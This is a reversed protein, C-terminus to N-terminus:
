SSNFFMICVLKFCVFIISIFFIRLLEVCNVFFIIIVFYWIYSILLELDCSVFSDVIILVVIFFVRVMLGVDIMM